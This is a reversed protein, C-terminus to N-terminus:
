RVTITTVNASGGISLMYTIPSASYTSPVDIFHPVKDLYTGAASDINRTWHFSQGAISYSGSFWGSVPTCSVTASWAV